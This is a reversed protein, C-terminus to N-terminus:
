FDGDRRAYLWGMVMLCAVAWGIGICAAQLLFIVEDARELLSVLLEIETM